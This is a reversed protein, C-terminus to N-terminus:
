KRRMLSKKKEELQTKEIELSAQLKAIDDKFAANQKNKILYVLLAGAFIYYLVPVKLCLNKQPM